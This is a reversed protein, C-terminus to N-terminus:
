ILQLNYEITINNRYQLYYILGIAKEQTFFLNKPLDRSFRSFRKAFVAGFFTFKSCGKGNNKNLFDTFIKNVFYKERDTEIINLSGKSSM